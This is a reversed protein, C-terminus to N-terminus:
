SLIYAVAQEACKEPTNPPSTDLELHPFQIPDFRSRVEHYRELSNVSSWSNIGFKRGELRHRIEDDSDNEPKCWIIRPETEPHRGLTETIPDWYRARSFTATIILRRKARLNIETAAYLLDYAGKMEERDRNMAMESINPHPNPPGFSLVRVADVDIWHIGLKRSVLEAVTGKGSIAWGCFVALTPNTNTM